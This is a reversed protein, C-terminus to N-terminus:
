NDDGLRLDLESFVEHAPRSSTKGEDYDTIRKRIERDWASEVDKSDAPSHASLLREVLALQQDQPLERAERFLQELSSM